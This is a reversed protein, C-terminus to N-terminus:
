YVEVTLGAALVMISVPDSHISAVFATVKRASLLHRSYGVGQADAADLSPIAGGTQGYTGLRGDWRLARDRGYWPVICLAFVWSTQGSVLM